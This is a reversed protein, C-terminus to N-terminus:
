PHTNNIPSQGRWPFLTCARSACPGTSRASSSLVWFWKCQRWPPQTRPCAPNRSQAPSPRCGWLSIKTTSSDKLAMLSGWPHLEQAPSTTPVHSLMQQQNMRGAAKRRFSYMTQITSTAWNKKSCPILSAPLWGWRIWLMVFTIIFIMKFKASSLHPPLLKSKSATSQREFVIKGM